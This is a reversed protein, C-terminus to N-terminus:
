KRTATRFLYRITGEEILNTLQMKTCASLYSKPHKKSDIEINMAILRSNLDNISLTKEQDTKSQEEKTIEQTEDDLIM